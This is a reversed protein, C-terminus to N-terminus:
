HAGATGASHGPNKAFVLLFAAFYFFLAIVLFVDGFSMVFAEKNMSGFISGMAQHIGATPSRTGILAVNYRLQNQVVDSFKSTAEAIRTFHLHYQHDFLAGLSGIGISGGLNRMMNNLGSASGIESPEIGVYAIATLPTIIFPAGLARVLQSWFFQNFGWDHTLHSNMLASTGFLLFGFGLLVRNDFRNVLKPIFFLVLLQPLGQWMIIQGIQEADLHRVSALFYPLFFISSYLGFGFVGALVTSIMFNRRKFLRLNIFPEPTTLEHYLFLGLSIFFVWTLTAILNSGWWDKRVGEELVVTLSGLAAAMTSIGFWDGKKLLSLQM